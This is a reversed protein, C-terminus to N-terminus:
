NAARRPRKAAAKVLPYFEQHNVQVPNRWNNIKTLVIREAPFLFCFQSGNGSMYWENRAYFTRSWWALSYRLTAVDDARQQATEGHWRARSRYDIIPQPIDTFTQRVYHAALLRKGNWVGDNLYLHGIRALDRATMQHCGFGESVPLTRGSKTTVEGYRNWVIEGAGIPDLLRERLVDTLERDYLYTLARALEYPQNNHYRSIKGPPFVVGYHPFQQGYITNAIGSTMTILHRFTIQDSYKGADFAPWVDRVKTDLSPVIGNTIAAGLLMSTISKGCSQVDIRTEPGGAHNWEAVLYGNRILVGNAKAKKMLADIKGLPAPDLGQAEPTSRTWTKGPFVTEAPTATRASALPIISCLM